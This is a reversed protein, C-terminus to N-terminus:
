TLSFILASTQRTQTLSPLLGVPRGAQSPSSLFPVSKWLGMNCCLQSAYVEM